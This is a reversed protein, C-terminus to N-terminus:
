TFELDLEAPVYPQGPASVRVVVQSVTENASTLTVTGRGAALDLVGGRASLKGRTTEVKVTGGAGEIVQGDAGTVTIALQVSDQGDGALETREASLALRPRAVLRHNVTDVMLAGLPEGASTTDAKLYDLNGADGGSLGATIGPDAAFAAKLQDPPVEVYRNEAVSFQAHTHVIRGTTTDYGVYRVTEEAGTNTSSM